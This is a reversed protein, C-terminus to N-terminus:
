FFVRKQRLFHIQSDLYTPKLAAFLAKFIEELSSQLYWALFTGQTVGELDLYYMGVRLQLQNGFKALVNWKINVSWHELRSM